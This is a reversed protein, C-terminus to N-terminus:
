INMNGPCEGKEQSPNLSHSQIIKGPHGNILVDRGVIALKRYLRWNSPHGNILVGRKGSENMHEHLKRYLRWNCTEGFNNGSRRVPGFM